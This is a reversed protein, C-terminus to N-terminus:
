CGRSTHDPGQKMPLAEPFKGDGNQITKRLRDLRGWNWAPSMPLCNPTKGDSGGFPLTVL